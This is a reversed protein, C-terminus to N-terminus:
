IVRFDANLLSVLEIGPEITKDVSAMTECVCHSESAYTRRVVRVNVVDPPEYWVARLLIRQLFIANVLAVPVFPLALDYAPLVSAKQSLLLIM